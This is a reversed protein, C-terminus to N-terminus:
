FSGVGGRSLFGLGRRLLLFDQDVVFGAGVGDHQGHASQSSYKFIEKKRERTMAPSTGAM